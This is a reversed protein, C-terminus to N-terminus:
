TETKEGVLNKLQKTKAKKDWCIGALNEKRLVKAQRWIKKLQGELRIELGLQTNRNSNRPLPPFIGSKDSVLKVGAYILRNLEM